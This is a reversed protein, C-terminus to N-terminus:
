RVVIDPINDDNMDAPVCPAVQGVELDGTGLSAAANISRVYLNAKCEPTLGVCRSISSGRCTATRRATSRSRSGRGPGVRRAGSRGAPGRRRLCRPADWKWIQTISANGRVGFVYDYGGPSADSTFKPDIEPGGRDRGHGHEPGRRPLRLDHREASPTRSPSPSNSGLLADHGRGRLGNPYSRSSRAAQLERRRRRDRGGARLALRARRRTSRSLRSLAPTDERRGVDPGGGGGHHAAISLRSGFRAGLPRTMRLTSSAM